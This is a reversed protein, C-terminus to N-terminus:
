AHNNQAPPGGESKGVGVFLLVAAVGVTWVCAFLLDANTFWPLIGYTVQISSFALDFQQGSAQAGASSVNSLYVELPLPIMVAGGVLATGIAARLRGRGRQALFTCSLIAVLLGLSLLDLQALSRLFGGLFLDDVLHTVPLLGHYSSSLGSSWLFVINLPVLAAIMAM